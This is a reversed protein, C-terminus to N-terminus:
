TVQQREPNRRREDADRIGTAKRDVASIEDALAPHDARLSPEAATLPTILAAADDDGLAAHLADLRDRHLPDRALLPSVQGALRRLGAANQRAWRAVARDASRRDRAAQVRQERTTDPEESGHPNLRLYRREAAQRSALGLAPALDTWTVGRDRAARILVPEWRALDDRLQRLTTLADLLETKDPESGRGQEGGPAPRLRTILDVLRDVAAATTTRM